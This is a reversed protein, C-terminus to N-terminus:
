FVRIKSRPVAAVGDDLTMMLAFCFFIGASSCLHWFDHSDSLGFALCARNLNRSEAPSLETEYQHDTYFYFGFAWTASAVVILALATPTLPERHYLKMLFYYLQYLLLNSMFAVLLLTSVTPAAAAGFAIVTLNMANLLFVFLLRSPSYNEPSPKCRRALLGFLSQFIRVFVLANLSWQGSHYVISTLLVLLLFYASLCLTWFLPSHYFIGLVELFLILGIGFFVKYANSIIDPHRFQYTKVFALAGLVYMFTTDFQYNQRTPCVHYCASFFGELAMAAGM